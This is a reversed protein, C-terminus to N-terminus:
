HASIAAAKLSLWHCYRVPSHDALPRPITTRILGGLFGLAMDEVARFDSPTSDPNEQVVGASNIWFLACKPQDYLPFRTHFPIHTVVDENDVIRYCGRSQAIWSVDQCFAQDGVRPCGFTYLTTADDSLQHFVLTAIAAGLSHGTICIEQKAHTGRYGRVLEGVRSWVTNLYKQFGQHVQGAGRGGLPVQPVLLADADAAVDNPNDKETGRFALLAFRDNTAFYGRATSANDVFCDGITEIVTFGRDSLIKRFEDEALRTKGYRAYAFMSADAAWSANAYRFGQNPEFTPGEFYIYDGKKPPFYLNEGTPELCGAGSKTLM